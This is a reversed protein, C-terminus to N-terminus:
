FWVSKIWDNVIDETMWGSGQVQVIIGQPFKEKAVTKHKFVVHPLLKHRDATTALM